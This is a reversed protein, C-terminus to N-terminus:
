EPKLAAKPMILVSANAFLMMLAIFYFVYLLGYVDAIIGGVLPIITSLLTQTGFMLGTASAGMDQPTVDMMWSHVVGRTSYLAFGLISICIIYILSDTVFTIGITMITTLTLGFMVVPRRGINDSLIGAIATAILGGIQMITITTGMEIKSFDLENILYLPLFMLFGNIATARFGAILCLGVVAREKLIGKLGAVYDSLNMGNKDKGDAARRASNEKPLLFILICAAIIFIPVANAIATTQWTGLWTLMVGIVFPAALDGVSAGIAHISLVYGKNDPFLNSLYPIAAPHWLFNSAGIMAALVCLMWYADSMGILVLTSAGATLSIVQFLVRRGTIDILASGGLNVIVSTAMLITGLLGVEFYSLGLSKQIFPMLIFFSAKFWHTAGHGSAVLLATGQGKQRFGSTLDLGTM